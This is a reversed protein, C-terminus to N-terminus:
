GSRAEDNKSEGDEEFRLRLYPCREEYPDFSFLFYAEDIRKLPSFRRNKLADVCERYTKLTYEDTYILLIIESHSGVTYVARDKRRLITRIREVLEDFELLGLSADGRAAQAVAEEDVLETVEFAVSRGSADEAICDPPDQECIRPL